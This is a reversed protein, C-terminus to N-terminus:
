VSGLDYEASFLSVVSFNKHFHPYIFLYVFDIHISIHALNIFQLIQKAKSSKKRNPPNNVLITFIKYRYGSIGTLHALFGKKWVM